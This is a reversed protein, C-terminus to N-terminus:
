RTGSTTGLFDDIVDILERARRRRLPALSQERQTPDPPLRSDEQGVVTQGEFPVCLDDRRRVVLTPITV